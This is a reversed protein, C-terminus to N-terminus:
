KAAWNSAVLADSVVVLERRLAAIEARLHVDDEEHTEATDASGILYNAISATVFGFVSVAFVRLLIAIVRSETSVMAASWWLADEFSQIPAQATGRDFYLPGWPM